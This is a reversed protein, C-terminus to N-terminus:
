LSYITIYLARNISITNYRWKLLTGKYDDFEHRWINNFETITNSTPMNKNGSIKLNFGLFLVIKVVFLKEHINLLLYKKDIYMLILINM